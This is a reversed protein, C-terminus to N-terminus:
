PVYWIVYLMPMYDVSGGGRAYFCRSAGATSSNDLFKFVMHNGSVWTEQNVVAQVLPTVGNFVYGVTDTFTSVANYALSSGYLSRGIFDEYTTFAAADASLEVSLAVNCTTAANAADTKGSVIIFADLITAGQPIYISGWRLGANYSANNAKRGIYSYGVDGWNFTDPAGFETYCDDANSSITYIAAPTAEAAGINITLLPAQATYTSYNYSTFARYADNTSANNEIFITISNGARWGPRDVIEQIITAIDPTDATGSYYAWAGISNWAVTATTKTRGTIDAYTSYIPSSDVDEGSITVNCTDHDGAGGCGLTIKASTITTRTPIMVNNFRLAANWPTTGSNGINIDYPADGFTSVNNYTQDDTGVSIRIVNTDNYTATTGVIGLAM